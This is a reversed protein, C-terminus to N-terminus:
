SPHSGISNLITEHAINDFFGKIDADLVWQHRANLSNNLRVWCQMIADQCSRGCRFGYSNPEFVAEWEPELSEKVIAQMIRDRITPIGLPRQKGNAKPIFVRITPQAEVDQWQNVLKVRQDPDFIVEEDIGATLKGKNIQTIQRVSLLLNAQCKLMLKQLRRLQKWQGLKRARFIRRRLNRVTKYVKTWDIQRWDKLQERQGHVESPIESKMSNTRRSFKM